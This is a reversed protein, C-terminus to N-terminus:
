TSKFGRVATCRGSGKCRSLHCLRVGSLIARAVHDAIAGIAGLSVVGGARGSRLGGSAGVDAAGLPGVPRLNGDLHDQIMTLAGIRGRHDHGSAATGNASSPVSVFTRRPSECDSLMALSTPAEFKCSM